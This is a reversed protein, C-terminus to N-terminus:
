AIEYLISRTQKWNTSVPVNKKTETQRDTQRNSTQKHHEKGHLTENRWHDDGGQRDNANVDCATLPALGGRWWGVSKKNGAIVGKALLLLPRTQRSMSACRGCVYTRARTHTHTRTLSLSLSLSLTRAALPYLVTLFRKSAGLVCVIM